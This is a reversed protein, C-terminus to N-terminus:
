GLPLLWYGIPALHGVWRMRRWRIEIGDAFGRL